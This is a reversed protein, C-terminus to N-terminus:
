YCGKVLCVLQRRLMTGLSHIWSSSPAPMGSSRMLATSNNLPSKGWATINGNSYPEHTLSHSSYEVVTGSVSSPDRRSHQLKDYGLKVTRSLFSKVKGIVDHSLSLLKLWSYSIIVALRAVIVSRSDRSLENIIPRSSFWCPASYCARM